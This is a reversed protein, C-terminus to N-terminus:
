YKKVKKLQFGQDSKEEKFTSTKEHYKDFYSIEPVLLDGDNILKITINSKEFKFFIMRELFLYLRIRELPGSVEGLNILHKNAYEMKAEFLAIKDDKSVDFKKCVKSRETMELHLLSFYDDLPEKFGLDQDIEAIYQDSLSYLNPFQSKLTNYRPIKGFEKTKLGYQNEFLDNLPDLFYCGKDGWAVVAFLPIKSSTAIVKSAKIGFQEFLSVYFDAFTSCVIEFGRNIFGKEFQEQKSEDSALFYEVDRRFYPALKRYLYRIIYDKSWYSPVDNIIKFFEGM